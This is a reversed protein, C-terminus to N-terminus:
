KKILRVIMIIPTKENKFPVEYFRDIVFTFEFIVGFLDTLSRHYYNQLSPQGEIAAVKNIISTFYDQDEYTFCPRHMAFVFCGSDSLLKSLSKFFPKIKGIDMIAM